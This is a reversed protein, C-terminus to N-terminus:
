RNRRRGERIVDGVTDPLTRLTAFREVAGPLAGGVDACLAFTVETGGEIPAFYWGGVSMETAVAGPHAAKHAEFREAHPGGDVLNEYRWALLAETRERTGTSFWFRDAVLTWGPVSLHQYYDIREGDRRLVEAETINASSWEKAASPDIVVGFLVDAAVETRAVARYCDVGDIPARDISVEGADRHDKDALHEWPATELDHHTPRSAATPIMMWGMWCVM